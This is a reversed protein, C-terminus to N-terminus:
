TEVTHLGLWEALLSLEPRIDGPAVVYHNGFCQGLFHWRDGALQLNVSLNPSQERRTRGESDRYLKVTSTQRIHNGDPLTQTSETVIDAAFPANKVVRGQM